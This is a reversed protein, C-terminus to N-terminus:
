KGRAFQGLIELQGAHYAEHAHYSILHAALTQEGKFSQLTGVTITNLITSLQQQTRELEHLIQEFRWSGMESTMPASEPIYRM